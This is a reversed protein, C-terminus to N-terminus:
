RIGIVAAFRGTEKEGRYSFFLDTGCRTCLESCGIHTEPVGAATLQDRSMKWFDFHHRNEKYIWLAKPIERRYNIFEACCRGLSPGIAAYLQAPECGFISIMTEVTREIINMVSGRWGSHINAVVHRNPDYLFVPQCDAVQIVLDKGPIDTVLADATPPRAGVPADPGVVAVATGHVQHAFVPEGGDMIRNIRQRNRSVHDASDGVGLGVNLSNFPAPSVGGRRTFVSHRLRNFRKLHPFELYGVGNQERFRM